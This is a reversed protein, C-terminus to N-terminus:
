KRKFIRWDSGFALKYEGVLDDAEKKNQATDIIEERKQYVGIINYVEEIVISM